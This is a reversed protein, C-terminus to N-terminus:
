SFNLRMWPHKLVQHISLRDTPNTNLMAVIIDRSELSTKSPFFWSPGLDQLDREAHIPKLSSEANKRRGAGKRSDAYWKSFSQYRPCRLLDEGFPLSRFLMAYLIVGASWVDAKTGDYGNVDSLSSLSKKDDAQCIIEPAVYHPSGVVSTMRSIADAANKPDKKLHYETFCGDINELGGCTLFSIASAGIAKINFPLNPRSSQPSIPFDSDSREMPGFGFPASLGFDAIKLTYRGDPCNHVLLNEPKLDRHAIGNIHCYAIGSSLEKFYQLMAYENQHAEDLHRVSDDIMKATATNSSILDFLEGGRVLELILFMTSKSEQVLELVEFLHVVNKHRGIRMMHRFEKTIARRQRLWRIYKPPVAPITVYANFEHCFEINMKSNAARHLGSDGRPLDTRKTVGEVNDCSDIGVNVREINDMMKEFEEESSGFPAHGWIEVCRTLPLEVLTNSSPEMYAAILSVKIGQKSSGQVPTPPIFSSPSSSQNIGINSTDTRLSRASRSSPNVLWWVHSETMPMSGSKVEESMEEGKRVVCAENCINPTSLRFGIPNLIKIAVNEELEVPTHLLTDDTRLDVDLQLDNIHELSDQACLMTACGKDLGSVRYDRIDLHQVVDAVLSNSRKLPVLDQFTPRTPYETLPLTRKGEYVVGAVGGGLYNGVEYSPKGDVTIIQGDYFDVVRCFGDRESENHVKKTGVPSSSLNTMDFGEDNSHIAKRNTTSVKPTVMVKEVDDDSSHKSPDMSPGNTSKSRSGSRPLLKKLIFKHKSSSEKNTTVEKKKERSTSRSRFGPFRKQTEGVM